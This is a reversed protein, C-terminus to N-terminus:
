RGKRSDTGTEKNPTSGSDDSPPLPLQELRKREPEPIEAIDVSQSFQLAKVHAVIAWRDQPPVQARYGPMTNIGYGTINFIEGIPHALGKESSLDSVVWAGYDSAASRRPVMGDGRGSFGHCPTCYVAFRNEGRELLASNVVIQPPFDKAWEGDKTGWYYHEDANLEGRAVTGAVPLRMSRGDAFLPNAAQEKFKQQQDMDYFVHIRTSRSTAFQAKAILMPPVLLALNVLIIASIIWGPVETDRSPLAM